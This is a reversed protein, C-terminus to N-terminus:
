SGTHQRMGRAAIILDAATKIAQGPTMELAFIQEGGLFVRLTCDDDIRWTPKPGDRMTGEHQQM